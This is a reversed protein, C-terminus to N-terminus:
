CMKIEGILYDSVFFQVVGFIIFILQATNHQRYPTFRVGRIMAEHIICAAGFLIRNYQLRYSFASEKDRTNTRAGFENLSRSWRLAKWQSVLLVYRKIYLRKNHLNNVPSTQIHSTILTSIM